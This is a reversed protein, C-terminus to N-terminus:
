RRKRPRATTPAARRRPMSRSSPSPRAPRSRITARLRRAYSPSRAGRPRPRPATTRRPSPLTRRECRPWGRRRRACGRSPLDGALVAAVIADRAEGARELSHSILACDAGAQLALVAARAAGFGALADMELCDTFCAGTFGLEGRLVGAVVRPSLSAPLEDDFAAAVVHAVMIARAGAAVAIRFPVLDRSRLLDAGATLRPLLDHSDHATAGHGPFHKYTAAVGGRELGRGFAAGLAGVRQPDDGFARTGVVASRAELALDLVPAFDVTVGASRLDGAVLLGVREALAPDDAAGLAMM